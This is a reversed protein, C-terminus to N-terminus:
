EPLTHCAADLPVRRHGPHHLAGTEHSHRCPGGDAWDTRAVIAPARRPSTALDTRQLAMPKLQRRAAGNLQMAKNLAVNANM